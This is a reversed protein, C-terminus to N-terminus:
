LDDYFFFLELTFSLSDVDDDEPFIDTQENEPEQMRQLPQQQPPQQFISYIEPPNRISRYAIGFPNAETVEAM